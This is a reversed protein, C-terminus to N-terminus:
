PRVAAPRPATTKAPAATKPAATKSAQEAKPASQKASAIARGDAIRSELEQLAAAPDILGWGFQDDRGEDGLNRATATLVEHIMAATATPHRELLLAVVGSVHAAAVSTGTTLQYTEDPAPVLVDVGPAAVALHPGRVAGSFLRDGEDTATVAIVHPDAAPYLPPSKAGLNGAAAILVVGKAHANKMALQIMPDYPGAFSMNIVRAGNKVAWDIGAIIQRTTAEPAQRTTTSFAHVAMIRAKPAIGLLKTHAAIAGIMGTGHTHPQDPVGVADFQEIIAGALDPHKADVKSDIVAVKIGSGTAIRHAEALRLKSVVYQENEGAGGEKAAATDQNILFVYSPQAIGIREAELARVVDPVQRGGALRFHYITGGTIASSQTGVVTLGLKKAQADVSQRSVGPGAQFVMETPVFRTEEKPPVGTFGKQGPLPRPPLLQRAAVIQRRHDNRIRIRETHTKASALRTRTREFTTKGKASKLDGFPGKRDQAIKGKDIRAKDFKDKALKSRDLKDKALKSKDLGDKALRDKALRDKGLKDKGLKDRALKGKDFKETAFKTKELKDRAFRDKLAKDRAARDLKDRGIKDLRDRASRDKLLRDQTKGIADKGLQTKSRQGPLLKEVGKGPVAPKAKLKKKDAAEKLIDIVSAAGAHNLGLAFAGLLVAAIAAIRVIRRTTAKGGLQM